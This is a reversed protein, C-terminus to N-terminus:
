NIKAKLNYLNEDKDRAQGCIVEAKLLLKNDSNKNIKYLYQPSCSKDCKAYLDKGEKGAGQSFDKIWDNLEEITLFSGANYLYPSKTTENLKTQCYKSDENDNLFTKPVSTIELTKEYSLLNLGCKLVESTEFKLSGENNRLNEWTSATAVKSIGNKIDCTNDAVLIAPFIFSTVLIILLIKKM